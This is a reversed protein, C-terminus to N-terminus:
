FCIKTTTVLLRDIKDDNIAGLKYYTKAISIKSLRMLYIFDILGSIERGNAGSVIMVQEVWETM